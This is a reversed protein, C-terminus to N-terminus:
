TPEQPQNGSDIATGDPQQIPETVTIETGDQADVVNDGKPCQTAKESHDDLVTQDHRFHLMESMDGPETTPINGSGEYWIGHGFSEYVMRQLQLTETTMWMERRIAGQKFKRQLAAVLDEVFLNFLVSVAGAIFIFALALISFDSPSFPRAV